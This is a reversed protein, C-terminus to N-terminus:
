LPVPNSCKKKLVIFIRFGFLPMLFSIWDDMKVLYKFIIYPIYAHPKFGAAGQFDLLSLIERHIIDLDPQFMHWYKLDRRFVINALALNGKWPDDKQVLGLRHYDKFYIDEHHLLKYGLYSAWTIYPEILFIRGGPRLIRASEKLFVHPQKVHHLLDLSIIGGFTGEHFPMDMCNSVLNIWPVHVIDSLVIEPFFDKILGSGSGVELLLGEVLFRKIKEIWCKYVLRIQPKRKWIEKRAYFEDLCSNNM